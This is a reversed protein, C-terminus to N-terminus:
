KAAGSCKDVGYRERHFLGHPDFADLLGSVLSCNTQNVQFFPWMNKEIVTLSAHQLTFGVDQNWVATACLETQIRKLKEAHDDDFHLFIMGTGAHGIIDIEGILQIQELAEILTQMKSTPLDIRVSNQQRHNAALDAIAYLLDVRHGDGEIGVSEVGSDSLEQELQKRQWDVDVSYGRFGVCFILQEDLKTLFNAGSAIMANRNLLDISAPRSESAILIKLLETLRHTDDLCFCMVASSEPLPKVQLTVETLVGLMGLSGIMIKNLDYGAVNKVVRGGAHILEGRGNVATMGLLYDRWSGCSFCLSGVANAAIAGGITADASLPVVIPLTQGSDNLVSELDRIQMGTQATITMDNTAYDVVRNLESTVLQHTIESTSQGCHSATNGGVINIRSDQQGSVDRLWDALEEQSGPIFNEKVMM